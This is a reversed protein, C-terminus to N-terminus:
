AILVIKGDQEGKEMVEYARRPENFSIQHSIHPHIEDHLHGHLAFWNILEQFHRRSGMTSGLIQLQRFYVQVLNIEAKPGATAGCIVLKGGNRLLKLNIQLYRSGVHDFIVGFGDNASVRRLADVLDQKAVLGQIGLKTWRELKKLHRSTVFIKQVSLSLLLKLIAQSVGSGAAHVLYPGLHHDLNDLLSAKKTVMQWATLWALPIAAAEADSLYDPAKELYQEPVILEECFVGPANEGRIQFDLRLNEPLYLREDSGTNIAPYIVVRDGPKFNKSRSEIVKGCFDAGAIHPFVYNARPFVYNARPLGKIMWIDIHNLSGALFKLRVEGDKLEGPSDIEFVQIKEISGVETFGIAKM